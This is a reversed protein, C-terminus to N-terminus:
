ASSDELEKNALDLSMELTYRFGTQEEYALIVKNLAARLNVLEDAQRALQKTIIQWQKLNVLTDM